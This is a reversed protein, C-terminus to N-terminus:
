LFRAYIFMESVNMTNCAFVRVCPGWMRWYKCLCIEVCVYSSECVSLSACLWLFLNLSRRSSVLVNM